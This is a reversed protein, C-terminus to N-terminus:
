LIAIREFHEDLLPYNQDKASVNMVDLPWQINILPDNYRIAGESSPAYPATHFYILESDEKLTQFGHACGEPIYIANYAEPTLEVSCWKLFTQSTRRLDIMVDYVAGKICRIIKVESYPAHQFHMGRVTGKQKNVSHNVQVIPKVHGIKKLEDICIIRSFTGRDDRIPSLEIIYAGKIATEVFTM